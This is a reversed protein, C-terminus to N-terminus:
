QQWGAKLSMIELVVVLSSSSPHVLVCFMKKPCVIITERQVSLSVFGCLNVLQCQRNWESASRYTFVVVQRCTAKHLLVSYLICFRKQCQRYIIVYFNTKQSCVFELFNYTFCCSM